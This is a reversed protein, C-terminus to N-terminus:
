YQPTDSTEGTAAPDVYDDTPPVLSAVADAVSIIGVSVKIGCSILAALLCAYSSVIDAHQEATYIGADPADANTDAGDSDATDDPTDANSADGDAPAAQDASGEPITAVSAGSDVNNVADSITLAETGEAEPTANAADRLAQIFQEKDEVVKLITGFTFKVKELILLLTEPDYGLEIPDGTQPDPANCGDTDVSGEICSVGTHCAVESILERLGTLAEERYAADSCLKEADIPEFRSLSESVSDLCPGAVNSPVATVELSSYAVETVTATTTSLKDYITTVASLLDSVNTDLAALISELRDAYGLIWDTVIQSECSLVENIGEIASIHAASTRSLPILDLSEAAPIGAIRQLTGKPDLAAILPKTIGMTSMLRGNQRIESYTDITDTLQHVTSVLTSLSTSVTMAKVVQAVKVM